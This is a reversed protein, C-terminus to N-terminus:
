FDCFFKMHPAGIPFVPQRPRKRSFDPGYSPDSSTAFIECIPDPVSTRGSAIRAPGSLHETLKRSFSCGNPCVDTRSLFSQFEVIISIGVRVCTFPLSFLYVYYIYLYLDRETSLSKTKVFISITLFFVSYIM